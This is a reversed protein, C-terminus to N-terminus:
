CRVHISILIEVEINLTYRLVEDRLSSLDRVLRMFAGAPSFINHSASTGHRNYHKWIVQYLTTHRM